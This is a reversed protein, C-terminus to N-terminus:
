LKKSFVLFTKGYELTMSGSPNDHSQDKRLEISHLDPYGNTHLTNSSFQLYDNLYFQIADKTCKMRVELQSGEFIGPPLKSDDVTGIPNGNWSDAEYIEVKQFQSDQTKLNIKMYFWNGDKDNMQMVYAQFSEYTM